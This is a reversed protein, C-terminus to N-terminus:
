PNLIPGAFGILVAAIALSRLILLWWPAQASPQTEDELGLLLGVAPFLKRVPAPPLARLLIWLLPLLLLGWLVWPASFAIVSWGSM